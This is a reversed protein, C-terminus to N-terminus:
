GTNVVPISIYIYMYVYIYFEQILIFLVKLDMIKHYLNSYITSRLEHHQTIKHLVYCIGM